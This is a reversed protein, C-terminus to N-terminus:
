AVERWEIISGAALATIASSSVESAFQAQLLGATAGNRVVGEIVALNGTTLSSANSAAPLQYAGGYNFTETTATLTNHSRYTILTPSAPGNVTWRSGTTTAAASYACKIQFEYTRSAEMWFALNPLDALTNATANNNVTDSTLRLARRTEAISTVELWRSLAASYRLECADGPLLVLSVGGFSFRNAATSGTNAHSLIIPNSGTNVILVHRGPAGGALGTIVRWSNSALNLAAATAHGTPAYDNQDATITAPTVVNTLALAGGITVGGSITGGAADFKLALATAIEALTDLGAAVGNRITALVSAKVQAITEGGSKALKGTIGDFVAIEDALAGAPGTVKDALGAATAYTSAAAATTLYNAATEVAMTGLGLTTRQAAANADDLLAKGASTIDGGLNATDVVGANITITGGSASVTVDGKNGDAAIVNNGPAGALNINWDALTGSGGVSTVNLVLTSGGYSTVQGAMWNAVNAASSAVMWAGPLIPLGTQVTFSKSGTGIALSTTSTARFGRKVAETLDSLSLSLNAILNRSPANPIIEYAKGAGTTGAYNRGLTISGDGGVTSVEYLAGTAIEHLTDGSVAGTLWATGTGTITPSGNTAAFTGADYWATL